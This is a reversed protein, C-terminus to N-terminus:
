FNIGYAAWCSTVNKMSIPHSGSDFGYSIGISCGMPHKKAVFIYRYAGYWTNRVGSTSVADGLSPKTTVGFVCSPNYGIELHHKKKLAKHYALFLDVVNGLGLRICLPSLTPVPLQANATFFHLFRAAMILSHSPSRGFTYIGDIQIGIATHGTGFQFYEFGHDKHTPIGLLASYAVNLREHLTQRYGGSFLVDDAQTHTTEKETLKIREHVRGIASDCRVYWEKFSYTYDFLGADLAQANGNRVTRSQHVYTGLLISHLTQGLKEYIEQRASAPAAIRLNYVTTIPYLDQHAYLLLASVICFYKMM